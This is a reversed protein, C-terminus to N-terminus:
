ELGYFNKLIFNAMNVAKKAEEQELDAPFYIVGDEMNRLPVTIKEMGEPIDDNDEGSGADNVDRDVHQTTNKAKRKSNPSRDPPPTKVYKSVEIDAEQCASLLFSICKTVTSGKAGLERFKEMVKDTTTNKLDFEPDTLFDYTSYLVEKLVSPYDCEPNVLKKMLDTPEDKNEILGMAKLSAAMTAKGSNSGPLTSRTLHTPMGDERLKNIFNSFSKYTVYPPPAKKSINEM